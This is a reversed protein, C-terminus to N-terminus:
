SLNAILKKAIYSPEFSTARQLLEEQPIPASVLKRLVSAVALPSQLPVLRGWVNDGLIERPGYNCDAAIVQVGACVGEAVTNPFAESLSTSVLIDAHKFYVNPRDHYGILKIHSQLALEGILNELALREPGEGIILLRPNLDIIEKISKIATQFDKLEDLRGVSLVKINGENWWALNKEDVISPQEHTFFIPNHIVLVDDEKCKIFHALGPRAAESLSIVKAYNRIFYPAVAKLLRKKLALGSLKSVREFDVRSWIGLNTDSGAAAKAMAVIAGPMINTAILIDPKEEALFKKLFLFIGLAGKPGVEFITANKPLQNERPGKVSLLVLSVDHGQRLLENALQINRAGIGGMQPGDFFLTIKKNIMAM